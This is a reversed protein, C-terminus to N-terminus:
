LTTNPQNFKIAANSYAKNKKSQRSKPLPAKPKSKLTLKPANVKKVNMQQVNMQQVNTKTKRTRPVPKKKVTNRNLVATNPVTPNLVALNPANTKQKRTRPKPLPKPAFAPAAFATPAFAPEVIKIRRSGRPKPMKREKELKQEMGLKQAMEKEKRVDIRTKNYKQIGTSERFHASNRIGVLLWTYEKILKSNLEKVDIDYDREFLDYVQTTFKDLFEKKLSIVRQTIVPTDEEQKLSHTEKDNEDIEEMELQFESINTSVKDSHLVVTPTVKQKRSVRPKPMVRQLVKKKPLEQEAKYEPSPEGPYYMPSSEADDPVYPKEYMKAVIHHQLIKPTDRYLDEDTINYKAAVDRIRNTMKEIFKANTKKDFARREDKSLHINIFDIDTNLIKLIRQKVVRIFRIAQDRNMLVYTKGPNENIVKWVYNMSTFTNDPEELEQTEGDAMFAMTKPKSYPTGIQNFRKNIQKIYDDETLQKEM